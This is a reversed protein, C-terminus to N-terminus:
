DVLTSAVSKGWEKTTGGTMNHPSNSAPPKAAPKASPKAAQAPAAVQPVPAPAPAVSPSPQSAKQMKAYDKWTGQYNPNWRKFEEGIIRSAQRDVESVFQERTYQSTIQPYQRVLEEAVMKATGLLEGQYEPFQTTFM